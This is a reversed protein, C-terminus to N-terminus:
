KNEDLAKKFLYEDLINLPCSCRAFPCITQKNKFNIHKYINGMSKTIHSCPTINGTRSIIAANYGANCIEGQKHYFKEMGLKNMDFSRLEEESYAEPYVRGEYDGYFPRFYFDLNKKRFFNRYMEIDKLLPPYAVEVASINFGKKKCFIFNDVYRDVLNHKELEKIHLSALIFAVRRPNIKDAFLKVKDTTLNTDILIYHKKTLEICADIINPVLFPEGGTFGIMFIKGTRDLTRILARVNIRDETILKSNMDGILRSITMKIEDRYRKNKLMRLIKNTIRKTLPMPRNKQITLYCYECALNCKQSVQWHLWANYNKPMVNEM